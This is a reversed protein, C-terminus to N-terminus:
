LRVNNLDGVGSMNGGFPNLVVASSSMYGNTVEQVSTNSFQAVNSTFSQDIYFYRLNFPLLTYKKPTVLNVIAGLGWERAYTPSEYVGMGVEGNFNFGKIRCAIM